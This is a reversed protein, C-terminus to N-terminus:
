NPAMSTNITCSRVKLTGFFRLLFTYWTAQRYMKAKKDTSEPFATWELVRLFLPRFKADNLKYVMAIASDNIVAEVEEVEEITYSDEQPPSLQIRRLDLCRM